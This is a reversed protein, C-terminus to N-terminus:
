PYIGLNPNKESNEGKGASQVHLNNLIL